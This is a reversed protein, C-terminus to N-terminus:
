YHTTINYAYSLMLRVQRGECAVCYGGSTPGIQYDCFHPDSDVNSPTCPLDLSCRDDVSSAQAVVICILILTSIVPVMM